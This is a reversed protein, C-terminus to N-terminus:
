VQDREVINDRQTEVVPRGDVIAQRESDITTRRGALGAIMTLGALVLGVIFLIIGVQNLDVGEVQYTVAWALIAGAAILLASLGLGTTKM